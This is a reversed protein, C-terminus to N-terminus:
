LVSQLDYAIRLETTVFGGKGGSGETTFVATLGRTGREYRGCHMATMPNSPYHSM